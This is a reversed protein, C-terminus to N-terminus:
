KKHRRTRKRTRKGGQSNKPPNLIQRLQLIRRIEAASKQHEDSLENYEKILKDHAEKLINYDVGLKKYRALLPLYKKQYEANKANAANREANKANREELESELKQYAATLTKHTPLLNNYDDQVKRCDEKLTMHRSERADYNELLNNYEEQLKGFDDILSNYESIHEKTMLTNNTPTIPAYQKFLRKGLTKLFKSTM